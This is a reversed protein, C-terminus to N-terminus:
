QVYTLVFLSLSIFQAYLPHFYYSEGVFYIADNVNLLVMYV